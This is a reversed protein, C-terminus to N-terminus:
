DVKVKQTEGRLGPQVVLVGHKSSACFSHFSDLPDGVAFDVWLGVFRVLVDVDDTDGNLSVKQKCPRNTLLSKSSM